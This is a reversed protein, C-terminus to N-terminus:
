IWRRVRRKYDRFSEGFQREMKAEEFPISVFNVWLFFAIPALLMSWTGIIMALGITVLLIGLYMPNRTFRFPGDAILYSNKPSAPRIEAGAKAFTMRGWAALAIGCILVATGLLPHHLWGAAELGAAYGIGWAVLVFLLGWAPPPIVVSISPKAPVIDDM